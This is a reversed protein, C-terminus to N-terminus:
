MGDAKDSLTVVVLQRDEEKWRRMNRDSYVVSKIYKVIDEKQGTEDHLSIKLTTLPDLIVRIDMEPRSAVCLHVNPLELGVLEEILELVDERASPTGSSNPCEDLADVIIYTPDQGPLNLMDKLCEKLSDIDPERTGNMNDSYLQSLINYCSDSEASLQSALSSLLGYCDQKKVDRFDFYYYAMTALGATRMREVDQIIASRVPAIFLRRRVYLVMVYLLTSKGAGATRDVSANSYFNSYPVRFSTRKGHIWLLSGKSKWEALASSEFFWAATGAHRAKRVFNQNTSPNPPSLWHQVDKKLRDGVFIGGTLAVFHLLPFLM